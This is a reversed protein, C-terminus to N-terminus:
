QKLKGLSNIDDGNLHILNLKVSKDQYIDVIVINDRVGGGMGTAVYTINNEKFYAYEIIHDRKKYEKSFAGVDGAFLYVETGIDKLIPQITPWYNPTEARNQQWNPKPESFKDKSWWILQHMFIFIHDAVQGENQLSEKLFDLQDGSINWQDINPDLIIFLNNDHVFKNYSKGFMIEFEDLPGDHNGRAIYYPMALDDLEKLVNPWSSPYRVVDGLLVGFSLNKSNLFSFKEKFPPYLEKKGTPAPKGYAHGAVFFSQQIKRESETCSLFFTGLFAILFYKM